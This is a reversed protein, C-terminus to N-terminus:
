ELKKIRIQQFIVFVIAVTAIGIFIYSLIQFLDRESTIDKLLSQYLDYLDKGHKLQQVNMHLMDIYTPTNPVGGPFNCLIAHIANSEAAIQAGVDTGSQLNSIILQAGGQLAQEILANIAGVSMLEDSQTWMAIVEFGLWELFAKQHSMCVVKVGSFGYTVALGELYTRNSQIDNIFTAANEAFKTQNEPQNYTVNLIATMNTVYNIANSPVGWPAGGVLTGVIKEAESNNAADLLPNLWYDGEFGHTFIIDATEVLAYDSPTVEYHAPCVGGPMISEIKGSEGYIIRSAFDALVTSAAITNNTSPDEDSLQLPTAFDQTTSINNINNSFDISSLAFANFLIIFGVFLTFKNLRRM